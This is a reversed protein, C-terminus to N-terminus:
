AGRGDIVTGNGRILPLEHSLAGCRVILPWLRNRTKKTPSVVWGTEAVM